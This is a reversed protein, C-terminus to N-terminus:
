KMIIDVLAWQVRLRIDGIGWGHTIEFRVKTFLTGDVKEGIKFNNIMNDIGNKIRVNTKLLGNKSIKNDMKM